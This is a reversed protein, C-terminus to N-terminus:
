ILLHCKLNTMRNTFECVTYKVCELFYPIMRAGRAIENSNYAQVVFQLKKLDQDSSSKVDM